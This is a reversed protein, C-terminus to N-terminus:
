PTSAQVLNQDTSLLDTTLRVAAHIASLSVELVDRARAPELVGDVSIGTDTRGALHELRLAEVVAHPDSGANKALVYPIAELAELFFSTPPSEVAASSLLCVLRMESAGQGPILGCQSTTTQLLQLTSQCIQRLEASQSPTPARVVLSALRASDPLRLRAHHGQGTNEVSFAELKWLTEQSVCNLAQSLPLGSRNSFSILTHSKVGEVAILEADNLAEREAPTFTGGYIIVKCGVAQLRKIINKAEGDQKLRHEAIEEPRSLMVKKIGSSKGDEPPDGVGQEVVSSSEKLPVPLVVAALCSESTEQLNTAPKAHMM